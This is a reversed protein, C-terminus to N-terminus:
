SSTAYTRVGHLDGACSSPRHTGEGAEGLPEGAWVLRRQAEDGDYSWSPRHTGEGAEGLPEGV